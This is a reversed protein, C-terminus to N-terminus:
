IANNRRERKEFNEHSLVLMHNETLESIGKEVAGMHLYMPLNEESCEFHIEETNYLSFVESIVRSFLGKGRCNPAIDVWEIFTCVDGWHPNCDSILIIGMIIGQVVIEYANDSHCGITNYYKEDYQEETLKKLM